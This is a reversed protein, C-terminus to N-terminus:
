SAPLNGELATRLDGEIRSAKGTEADVSVTITEAVAICKDGQFIGQGMTYSSGGVRLVVTGVDVEGPYSLESVYEVTFKVVVFGALIDVADGPMKVIRFDVRGDEFFQNIAINNVHNNPDLDNYRIRETVWTAYGGRTRLAPDPAPAPTTDNM